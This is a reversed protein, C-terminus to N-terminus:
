SEDEIEFKHWGDIPNGHRDIIAYEYGTMSASFNFSRPLYAEGGEFRVVMGPTTTIIYLVEGRTMQRMKPTPKIRFVTDDGDILCLERVTGWRQRNLQYPAEITAGDGYAKIISALEKARKRTLKM